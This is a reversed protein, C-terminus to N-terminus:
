GGFFSRVVSVVREVEEATLLPEIPLSLVEGSAKEAELCPNPVLSYGVFLKMRPLPVPYYVMCGIKEKDLFAKFEDRRGDKVRVTYQHYVHQVGDTAPTTLGRLDSLAENYRRAILRRRSNFEALVPLKALLIAAQMTDLRANYGIHQVDYKDKGGHKTLIRVLEALEDNNTTVGGADGFAGLNKSPFFSFAGLDGVTGCHSGGSVSGCAQAVDEILAIGRSSLMKHLRELDLSQGYLHVGIVARVRSDKKLYAELLNLDLNCTCPDIDLFVPTARARIIADGTATFSFATTVVRDDPTWYEEGIKHLSLARLALVLAETGSSVGIVHKAGVNAGFAREFKAVEPGLIWTQHELIRQLAADIALKLFQYERKLDLLPVSDTAM